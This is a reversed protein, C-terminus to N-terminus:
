KIVGLKVLERKVYVASQKIIYVKKCKVYTIVLGDIRMPFCYNSVFKCFEREEWKVTVVLEGSLVQNCIYWQNFKADSRLGAQILRVQEAYENGLIRLVGLCDETNDDVMMGVVVNNCIVVREGSFNLQVGLMFFRKREERFLSKSILFGGL